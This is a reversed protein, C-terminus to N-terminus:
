QTTYLVGPTLPDIAVSTLDAIQLNGNISTLTAAPPNFGGGGGGGFARIGRGGSTFDYSYSNNVARWIGGETGILLRGQADFTLAHIEPPMLTLNGNRGSSHQILDYWYVGEGQYLDAGSGGPPPDYVGGQAAARAAKTLDDGNAAMNGTDVRI